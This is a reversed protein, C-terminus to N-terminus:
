RVEEPALVPALIELEGAAFYALRAREVRTEDLIVGYPQSHRLWPHDPPLVDVVTGQRDSFAPNLIVRVRQGFQPQRV